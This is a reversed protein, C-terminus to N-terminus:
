GHRYRRRYFATEQEYLQILRITSHVGSVQVSRDQITRASHLDPSQRGTGGSRASRIRADFGNLMTVFIVPTEGHGPVLRLKECFEFGDMGPMNVDTIILDFSEKKLAAMAALPDSFSLSRLHARELAHEVAKLSIPEDDLALIKFESLERRPRTSAHDFLEGLFDVAQNVSRLTSANTKKPTGDLEKLLLELASAMQAFSPADALAASAALVHVARYLELVQGPRGAEQETRLLNQSLGRLQALAKPTNRLFERRPDVPVNTNVRSGPQAPGTAVVTTAVPTLAALTSAITALLDEHSTNSKILCQNAGAKQADNLMKRDFANTFVVIPLEKTEPQSRLQKIIELGNLRPLMLDLVIIDPQFRAVAALGKQGDDFLQVQYGASSFHYNYVSGTIIDDEIFLLKKKM